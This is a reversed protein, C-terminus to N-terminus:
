QGAQKNLEAENAKYRCSSELAAIQFLTIIIM